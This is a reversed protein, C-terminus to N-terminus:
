LWENITRVSLFKKKMKAVEKFGYMSSVFPIINVIYYLDM